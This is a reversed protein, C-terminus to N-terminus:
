HHSDAVNGSKAARCSKWCETDFLDCDPCEKWPFAKSRIKLYPLGETRHDHEHVALNYATFALTLGIMGVFLKLFIYM